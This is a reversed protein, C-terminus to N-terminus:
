RYIYVATSDISQIPLYFEDYAAQGEGIYVDITEAHGPVMGLGGGTDTVKFFDDKGAAEMLPKLIPIEIVDGKNFPGNYSVAVTELANYKTRYDAGQDSNWEFGLDEPPHKWDYGKRNVDYYCSVYLGNNLKGTGQMCVGDPGYLFDMPAM